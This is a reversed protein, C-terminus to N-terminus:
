TWVNCTLPQLIRGSIFYFYFHRRYSIPTHPTHLLFFHIHTHTHTHTRTRTGALTCLSPRCPRSRVGSVKGMTLRFRLRTLIFGLGLGLAFPAVRCWPQQYINWFYESQRRCCACCRDVSMLSWCRVVSMLGWYRVVSMLGWLRVASMLGWCRVILVCVCSLILCVSLCM